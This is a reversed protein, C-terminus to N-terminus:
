LMELFENETLVPIGLEQAKTLKSGANEGAVVYTTKKSVSSVAKGGREEVLKGAEQRTFKQLTGTLVFTMGEFNSNVQKELYEMNVGAAKLRGILHQSQASGLWDLIFQATIPGIDPIETLEDLGSASLAEFSKFHAALVHGAKAGVQRIGLAYLLRSLDNEKSKEIAEMANRASKKGMRELNAVDEERLYYLDAPSRVMETEIMQQLVAPGVGEIDMADRSVFHVLNRLLQAPCEAGTCRVAAGDLDRSVPAGCVPCREPLVYPTTGFPRKSLDVSVIEPIIEGAKQVLVTDGVRIDKEAIYDQNHLTANTVTTGALHVPEVIAKPTLVGTRGVQVVINVVKSPKQEPPYKYAIAWRPSKATSGLLKRDTLSNVKVVAGDMDFPFKERSENLAVIEENCEAISNVVRHAIVKFNQTRLYDLTQEHTEFTRGQCLQLNFIQIDLRRQAAIKSDLQRLSGAAANRPNAFLPEGNIERMANLEDFVRHSMYVEGRVILHPLKEPLTMPISKITRLNETVDEGIRGDGRTAGRVFIGDRYELAVSLGDVKPEVSYAVQHLSEAMRTGFENVEEPSFVDQLSELPVEHEVSEFAALIRGGM